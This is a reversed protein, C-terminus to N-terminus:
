SVLARLVKPLEEPIDEAILGPGFSRAAAVHLCAATQAADFPAAGRALLGAIMGALVDGSGATALWGAGRGDVIAARGSAEAISTDHGKLLVTCGARRAAERVAEVKPMDALDPFMRAFEGRHPTLVCRPHLRPNKGLATLADADLVTPRDAALVSPLTKRARDIGMGPGLCIATIRKDKLIEAPSDIRLMIADLRAANEAQAEPPTVLTVLGAGIRLAARATLRAAGGHGPPGGLVIAHGHDYKHGDGKQLLRVDPAALHLDSSAALGLDAVYLRGTAAPGAGIFHGPKPAHFTVTLDADFAPETRSGTDLDIGTPGDVAVRYRAKPVTMAIPRPRGIGFLADILLDTQPTHQSAVPGITQWRQRMAQAETSRSDAYAFVEVPWGRAHLLRAVVYGDGGNNGPGCLVLTHPPDNRLDPWQALIADVVAQGAQEMMQEPTITGSAFAHEEM